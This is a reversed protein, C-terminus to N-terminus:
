HEGMEVKMKLKNVSLKNKKDSMGVNYLGPKKLGTSEIHRMLHTLFAPVGDHRSYAEDLDCGFIKELCIFYM